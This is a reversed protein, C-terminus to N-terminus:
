AFSCYILQFYVFNIFDKVPLDVRFIIEMGSIIEDIPEIKEGKGDIKPKIDVAEERESIKETTDLISLTEKLRQIEGDKKTIEM